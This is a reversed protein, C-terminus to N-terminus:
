RPCKARRIQAAPLPAAAITLVIAVHNAHKMQMQAHDKGFAPVRKPSMSKLVEGGGRCGKILRAAPARTIASAVRIQLNERRDYPGAAARFARAAAM